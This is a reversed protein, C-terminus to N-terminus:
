RVERIEVIPPSSCEVYQLKSRGLLNLQDIFKKLLTKAETSTTDSPFSFLSVYLKMGIDKKNEKVSDFFSKLKPDLGLVYERFSDHQIQKVFDVRKPHPMSLWDLPLLSKFDVTHPPKEDIEFWKIGLKKLMEKWLAKTVFDQQKIFEKYADSGYCRIYHECKATLREIVKKNLHFLGLEFDERTYSLNLEKNELYKQFNEFLVNLSLNLTEHNKCFAQIQKIIDTSM